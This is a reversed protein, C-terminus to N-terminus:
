SNDLILYCRRLDAQLGQVADVADECRAQLFCCQVPIRLSPILSAALPRPRFRHYSFFRCSGGRRRGRRASKSGRISAHTTLTAEEVVKRRGERGGERREEESGGDRGGERGGCGGEMWM